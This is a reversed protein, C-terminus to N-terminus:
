RKGCSKIRGTAYFERVPAGDSIVARVMHPMVREGATLGVVIRKKEGPDLTM